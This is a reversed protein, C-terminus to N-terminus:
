DEDEDLDLDDLDTDEDGFDFDDPDFAAALESNEQQDKFRKALEPYKEVVAVRFVAAMSREEEEAVEMLLKHMWETVGFEVTKTFLKKRM